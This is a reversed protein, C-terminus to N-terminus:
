LVDCLAELFRDCDDASLPLPPKIKLVDENPGDTSILIGRAKLGEKVRAAEARSSLEVGLFLGHGRADVVNLGRLGDLLRTGMALAHAQLREDEIVDLVALGIEASVPNGGFTNFYEMGTLFSAAVEPTTVVAGLPHGNGIPKGLTVIDPVVGGLEFAWFHEGVRGFGTQVEDAVCLGGAARVAEFAASLYGPPPVVQGACGLIPEAFFAAPRDVAPLEWLPTVRAREPPAKYPSLGITSTLHGHYAHDLVHVEDRGTHARALRLALDNAESGSNVFFCVHLPDPFTAALRRAYDVVSAHLYRTNTNLVAMQRAGAEVVRPHCHGVHAVNNVLDLFARGDADYLYAGEGRVIHLPESYALSLARSMATRRREAIDPRAARASTGNPLGLLLNPDPCVSRFLDAEEPLAVGDLNGVLDTFLQLHLHPEWGGNVEATGLRAIVDGQKVEGTALSDPDLHGHLTWFDGHRVVLLGGYDGLQNRNERREVVGDLPAYVPAGAPAFIDVAMHRTRWRGDPTQFEPATYIARQEDYRGIALGDVPPMGASLDLVPANALDGDMVPHADALLLRQRVARANPSAEYGCADRFRFHALQPDEHQLRELLDRIGAQSVLLYENDPQEAFQKDAMAVSMRLRALMLEFLVALEEVSLPTVEHYGRVLPVVARAPDACGQMAYAGAIALGCVRATYVVDGFDILGTVDGDPGVLINHENADNHIVQHPLHDLGDYAHKLDWRHPRHMNPHTFDALARDVRAVTRGLSAMDGPTEAWPSGELWSLLRVTYGNSAATPGVLRPVAPEERLHELVADELALDAADKHLKLVYRAGDASLAFNLDHEGPLPRATADLGYLERAIQLPDTM